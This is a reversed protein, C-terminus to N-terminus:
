YYDPVICYGTSPMAKDWHQGRTAYHKLNILCGALRFMGGKWNSCLKLGGVSNRQLIGRSIIINVDAAKVLLIVHLVEAHM